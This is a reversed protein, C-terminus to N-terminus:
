LREVGKFLTKLLWVFLKESAVNLVVIVLTWCLLDANQFYIKANYLKEGISGDLIGIVEAAVGAKWAMGAAVGSASLLFPKVSPLYIYVLQKGWPVHYLAAVERLKEDTSRIGQLTNSYIVPFSILFAIFVTLHDYDMWLLCLIIFSAVPVTKITVVYPRLLIELVRLRGALVGLVLGACFALLFGWSVRLFSYWVTQFFGPERLVGWLRALAKVPSALLMDMGVEMALLQWLALALLVSAIKLLRTKNMCSTSITERFHEGWLM